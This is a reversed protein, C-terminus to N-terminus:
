ALGFDAAAILEAPPLPHRYLACANEYAVKKITDPALGVMESRLMGQCGPWTSDMHPIDTEVMVHDVGIRDLMSFGAPDELSAFWFNRHLLEVPDPDSASWVESAPVHRHARRLREAVMPVWSLGAESLVVKCDEAAWNEYPGKALVDGLKFQEFLVFQLERLDAKYHNNAQAM